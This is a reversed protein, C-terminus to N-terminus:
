CSLMSGSRLSKAPVSHVCLGTLCGGSYDDSYDESDSYDGDAWGETSSEHRSHSGRTAARSSGRQQQQAQLEQQCKREQQKATTLFARCFPCAEHKEAVAEECQTCLKNNCCKLNSQLVPEASMFVTGACCRTDPM